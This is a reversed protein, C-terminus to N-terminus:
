GLKGEVPVTQCYISDWQRRGLTIKGLQQDQDCSKDSMAITTIENWAQCRRIGCSALVVYRMSEVLHFKVP